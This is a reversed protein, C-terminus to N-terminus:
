KVNVKNLEYEVIVIVFKNRTKHDVDNNIM